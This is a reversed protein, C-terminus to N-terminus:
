KRQYGKMEWDDRNMRSKEEMQQAEWEEDSMRMMEGILINRHDNMHEICCYSHLKGDPTTLNIVAVKNCNPFKCLTMDCVGQPVREERLNRCLHEVGYSGM